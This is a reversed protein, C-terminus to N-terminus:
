QLDWGVKKGTNKRKQDRDVVGSKRAMWHARGLATQDENVDIPEIDGLFLLLDM